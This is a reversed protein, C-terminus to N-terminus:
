RGQEGEAFANWGQAVLPLTTHDPMILTTGEKPDIMHGIVSIGPENQIKSFENPPITFLIEYDEGGNLAPILPSMFMEEATRHAENHIPLKDAYIRCGLKSQNCIHLLDSSLGDSVDIMASPQVNRAQLLDVLDRQAEPKLHRELVYAYNELDPQMRADEEVVKKERQLVLLGLYAAGLDGTVCILDGKKATDRYVARGKAITGIATISLTLGNLSASTDGGVLDVHYRSCAQKIGKYLEEMHELSFRKSLGVNVLIQLPKANMAFIDSLNVVVAKYGLHKLPIFTLDFHIGELLLDSTIVTQYGDHDLVAADDGIGKRTSPHQCVIEETLHRILGFEGMEELTIKKKKEAM